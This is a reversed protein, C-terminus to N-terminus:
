CGDYPGWPSTGDQAYAREFGANQEAVSYDRAPGPLGTVSTWTSDLFGYLGSATSSPNQARPNGGSERQIVCEQFSSSATIRTSSSVLTAAQQVHPVPGRACRIVLVQGPVIRDPDPGIVSRNAAYIGPWDRSSPCYRRAIASLYDGPRVTVAEAIASVVDYQAPAAQTTVTSKVQADAPAAAATLIGAAATGAVLTKGSAAMVSAARSPRRHRGTTAM